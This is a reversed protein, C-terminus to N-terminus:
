GTTLVDMEVARMRYLLMHSFSEDVCPVIDDDRADLPVKPSDAGGCPEAM